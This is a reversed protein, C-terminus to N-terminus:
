LELFSGTPSPSCSASTSQLLCRSVKIMTSQDRALPFLTLPPETLGKGALSSDGGEQKSLETKRDPGPLAKPYSQMFLSPKISPSAKTM